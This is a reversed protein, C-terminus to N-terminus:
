VVPIHLALAGPVRELREKLRDLAEDRSRGELESRGLEPIVEDPETVANIEQFQTEGGVGGDESGGILVVGLARYGGDVPDTVVAV